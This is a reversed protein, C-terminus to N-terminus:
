YLFNRTYRIPSASLPKTFLLTPKHQMLFKACLGSMLPVHNSDASNWESSRSRMASCMPSM